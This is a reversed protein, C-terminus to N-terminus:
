IQFAALIDRVQEDTEPKKPVPIGAPSSVTVATLAEPASFSPISGIDVTIKPLDLKEGDSFVPVSATRELCSRMDAGSVAAPKGVAVTEKAREWAFTDPIREAARAANKWAESPVPMHAAIGKASIKKVQPVAVKTYVLAAVIQRLAPIQPTEPLAVHVAVPKPCIKRPVEPQAAAALRVKVRPLSVPPLEKQWTGPKKEKPLKPPQIKEPAAAFSVAQAPMVQPLTIRIKKTGAAPTTQSKAAVNVTSPITVAKKELHVAPITGRPAPGTKPVSIAPKTIEAKPVSVTPIKLKDASVGYEEYGTDKGSISAFEGKLKLIVETMEYEFLERCRAIDVKEMEKDEM